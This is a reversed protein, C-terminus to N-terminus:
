RKAKQSNTSTGKLGLLMFIKMKNDLSTRKIPPKLQDEHVTM